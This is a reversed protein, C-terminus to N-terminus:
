QAKSENEVAVPQGPAVFRHGSIILRDGDSLGSVIQVSRGKFFGLEVERRQAKGGEVVYVAKGLELPIVAALPIEIVNRLVRRTLRVRVIQGSRLPRLPSQSAMSALAPIKPVEGPAAGAAAPNSTTESDLSRWSAPLRRNDVTIEVRSTRTKEDALESIYNIKGAVTRERGRVMALIEETAGVSLYQVDHEPMDVVVKVSDIDVVEAVIDGPSVYEGVEVPLDNLIGSVPCRITARDLRAKSAELAAQSADAKAGLEEAEAPSSAGRKLAAMVREHRDRDYKAIARAGDYEAKLLDTNLLIMPAGADYPTGERCSIEEIRGSVEAPVKVIRNPEVTGPLLITEPVVPQARVRLVQVNVPPPETPPLEPEKATKWAVWAVLGVASAALLVILGPVLRKKLGRRRRRPSGVENAAKM